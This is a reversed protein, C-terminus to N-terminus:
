GKKKTAEVGSIFSFCFLIPSLTCAPIQLNMNNLVAYIPKYKNSVSLQSHNRIVKHRLPATRAKKVRTSPMAQDLLNSYM